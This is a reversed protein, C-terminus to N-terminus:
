TTGHRRPPHPRVDTRTERDPHADDHARPVDGARRGSASRARLRRAFGSSQTSRGCFTHGRGWLSAAGAGWGCAASARHRSGCARPGCAGPVGLVRARHTFGRARRHPQQPSARIGFPRTPAIGRRAPDSRLSLRPAALRLQQPAVADPDVLAPKGEDDIEFAAGAHLVCMEAGICVDRDVEVNVKERM